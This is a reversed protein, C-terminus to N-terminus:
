FIALLPCDYPFIVRHGTRLHYQLEVFPEHLHVNWSWTRSTLVPTIFRLSKSWTAPSSNALNSIRQLCWTYLIWIFHTATKKWPSSWTSTVHCPPIWLCPLSISIVRSSDPMYNRWTFANIANRSFSPWYPACIRSGSPSLGITIPLWKLHLCGM